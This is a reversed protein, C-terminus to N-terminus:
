GDAKAMGHGDKGLTVQSGAHQVPGEVRLAPRSGSPCKVAASAPSVQANGQWAALCKGM